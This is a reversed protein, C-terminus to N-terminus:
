NFQELAMGKYRLTRHGIGDLWLEPAGIRKFGLARMKSDILLSYDEMDKSNKVWLSIDFYVDSYGFLDCEKTAVNDSQSYTICPYTIDATKYNESTVPLGITELATILTPKYDIM